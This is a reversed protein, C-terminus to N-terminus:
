SALRFISIPAFAVPPSRGALITGSRRSRLAQAFDVIIPRDPGSTAVPLVSAGGIIANAIMREMFGRTSSRHTPVCSGLLHFRSGAEPLLNRGNPSSDSM